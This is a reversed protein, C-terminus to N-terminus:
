EENHREEHDDMHANGLNLLDFSYRFSEEESPESADRISDDEELNFRIFHRCEHEVNYTIVEIPKASM